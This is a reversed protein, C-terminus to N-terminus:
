GRTVAKWQSCVFRHILCRATMAALDSRSFLEAWSADVSAPDKKWQQYLEELYMASSGNLFSDNDYLLQREPMADSAHHRGAILTAQSARPFAIAPTVASVCNLVGRASMLRRMM